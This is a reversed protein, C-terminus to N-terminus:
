RERAPARVMRGSMKAAACSAIGDNRSITPVNRRSRSSLSTMATSSPPAM